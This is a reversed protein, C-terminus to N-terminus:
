QFDGTQGTSLLGGRPGTSLGILDRQYGGRPGTSKNRNWM